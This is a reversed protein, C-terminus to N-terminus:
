DKVVHITTLVGGLLTAVFTIAVGNPTFQNTSLMSAFSSGGVGLFAGGLAGMHRYVKRIPSSILYESAHEIHSSSVTESNHRKAIKVAETILLVSYETIKDKLNDFARPTFPTENAKQLAQEAAEIIQQLKSGETPDLTSM